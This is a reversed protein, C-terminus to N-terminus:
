QLRATELSQQRRWSPVGGSLRRCECSQDLPRALSFLERFSKCFRTKVCALDDVAFRNLPRALIVPEPKFGIRLAFPTKPIDTHELKDLVVASGPRGISHRPPHDHKLRRRAVPPPPPPPPTARARDRIRGRLSRPMVGAIGIPSANASAFRSPAASPPMALQRVYSTVNFAANASASVPAGGRAALYASLTPATQKNHRDLHLRRTLLDATRSLRTV